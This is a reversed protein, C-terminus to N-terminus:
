KYQDIYLPQIKFANIYDNITPTKKIPNNLNYIHSSLNPPLQKIYNIADRNIIMAYICLEENPFNIYKINEYKYNIAEICLDKPPNILYRIFTYRKNEKIHKIIANQVPISTNKIYEIYNPGTKIVKICLEDTQLHKPIYKISNTHSTIAIWCMEETKVDDPVYELNGDRMKVAELCKEANKNKYSIFANVCKNQVAKWCLEDTYFKEPILKFNFNYVKIMEYCLEETMMNKPIHKIYLNNELHSALM